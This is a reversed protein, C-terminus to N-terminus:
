ECTKGQDCGEIVLDLHAQVWDMTWADVLAEVEEVQLDMVQNVGYDHSVDGQQLEM